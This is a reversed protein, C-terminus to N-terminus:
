HCLLLKGLEVRLQLRRRDDFFYLHAIPTSTDAWTAARSAHPVIARGHHIARGKTPESVRVLKSIRGTKRDAAFGITLLWVMLHDDYLFTELRIDRPSDTSFLDRIHEKAVAVAAQLNM